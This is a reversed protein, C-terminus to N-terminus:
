VQLCLAPTPVLFRASFSDTGKIHQHPLFLELKTPTHPPTNTQTPNPIPLLNGPKHTTPIHLPTHTQTSQARSITRSKGINGLITLFIFGFIAIICNIQVMEVLTLVFYCRPCIMITNIWLEQWCNSPLVIGRPDRQSIHDGQPDFVRNEKGFTVGFMTIITRHTNKHDIHM